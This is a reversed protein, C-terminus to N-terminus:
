KERHPGDGITAEIRMQLRRSLDEPTKWSIHSYQRTDFHLDAFLDERCSFIVPIGLGHAFGAEYYVGGRVGTDGYTFDAVLFRSRRIEAIIEDDIKNNHDKKDIRMAKYGAGQIGRKIGNLYLDTMSEDFWMAVFAQDSAIIQNEIQDLHLFGLYAVSCDIRDGGRRALFLYKSKELFELLYILEEKETSESHALMQALKDDPDAGYMDQLHFNPYVTVTSGINSQNDRVYTLLRNAREAVTLPSRLKANKISERTITPVKSGLRRQEVLWSTLRAKVDKSLDELEHNYPDYILYEGGSRQSDVKTATDLSNGDEGRDVITEVKASVGWLLCKGQDAVIVGISPPM